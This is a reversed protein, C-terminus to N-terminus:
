KQNDAIYGNTKLLEKLDDLADESQNNFIWGTETTIAKQLQRRMKRYTGTDNEPLRFAPLTVTKNYQINQKDNRYGVVVGKQKKRNIKITAKSYKFKIFCIIYSVIFATIFILFEIWSFGKEGWRELLFSLIFAAFISILLFPFVYNHFLSKINPEIVEWKIIQQNAFWEHSVRELTKIALDNKEPFSESEAMKKALKPMTKEFEAIEKELEEVGQLIEELSKPQNNDTNNM